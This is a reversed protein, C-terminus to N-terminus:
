SAPPEDGLDRSLDSGYDSGGPRGVGAWTSDDTM